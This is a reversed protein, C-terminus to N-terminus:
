YETVGLAAYGDRKVTYDRWGTIRSGVELVFGPPKGVESIVYGNRRIIRQPDSVGNAFVCDPVLEVSEGANRLLYGDGCILVDDRGAFHALLTGDISSLSSRQWMDPDRPPDPLPEIRSYDEAHPQPRASQTTM